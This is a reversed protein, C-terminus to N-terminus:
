RRPAMARRLTAVGSTPRSEGSARRSTAAASRRRSARAVDTYAEVFYDYRQLDLPVGILREVFPRQKETVPYCLVMRPDDSTPEFLRQLQAVRAGRLEYGRIFREDGSKRFQTVWRRMSM